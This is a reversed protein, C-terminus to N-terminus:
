NNREEPPRYPVGLLDFIEMETAGALRRGAVKNVAEYLGHQNLHMGKKEALLRMSRNFIDNGTFYLKASGVEHKPTILIDLRRHVGKRLQCVGRFTTTSHSIVDTILTSKLTRVVREMLGNSVKDSKSYVIIDIDGCDAAGRRYSGLVEAELDGEMEAIQKRVMREVEAVEARPIRQQFEDVYKLGIKQAHTLDKRKRIDDLSRMGEQYWDQALKPGVGYIKMFGQLISIHEPEQDNKRLHGTDLIEQIKDAIKKGV